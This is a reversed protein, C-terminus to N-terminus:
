QPPAQVQAAVPAPAAPRQLGQSVGAIVKASIAQMMAPPIGDWADPSAAQSAFAEEGTVRNVRQGNADLVDWVYTVQSTNAEKRAFLYGSLSSQVKVGPDIVLAINEKTAAENLAKAMAQTVSEPAGIVPKLGLLVLSQTARMKGPEGIAKTPENPALASSIDGMACGAVSAALICSTVLRRLYKSGIIM